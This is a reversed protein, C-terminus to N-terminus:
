TKPRSSCAGCRGLDGWIEGYRGTDSLDEAALQLLGVLEQLPRPLVQARVLRRHSLVSGSYRIWHTPEAGHTTHYAGSSRASTGDLRHPPAPACTSTSRHM